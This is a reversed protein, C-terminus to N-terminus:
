VGGSSKPINVRRVPKPYYGDSAMQDWIKCINDALNTEFDTAPQQDIGAGGQNQINPYSERYLIGKIEVTCERQMHNFNMVM